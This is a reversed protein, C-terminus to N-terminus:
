SVGVNKEEGKPQNGLESQQRKNDDSSASPTIGYVLSPSWTTPVELGEVSKGKSSVVKVPEEFLGITGEYYGM